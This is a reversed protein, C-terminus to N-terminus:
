QGIDCQRLRGRTGVQACKQRRQSPVSGDRLRDAADVAQAPRVPL